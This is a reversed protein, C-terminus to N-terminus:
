GCLVILLSPGSRVKSALDRHFYGRFHVYDMAEAIQRALRVRLTFSLEKEYDALLDELNGGDIFETVCHLRAGHVCVGYFSRM